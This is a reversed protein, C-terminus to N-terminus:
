SIIIRVSIVTLKVQFGDSLGDFALISCIEM